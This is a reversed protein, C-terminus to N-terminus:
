IRNSKTWGANWEEILLNEYLEKLRVADGTLNGKDIKKYYEFFHIIHLCLDQIADQSTEGTGCVVLNENEAFFMDEDRYIKIVIPKPTLFFNQAGYLRFLPTPKHKRIHSFIQQPDILHETGVEEVGCSKYSEPIGAMREEIMDYTDEVLLSDIM